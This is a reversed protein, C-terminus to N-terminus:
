SPQKTKCWPFIYPKLYWHSRCTFLWSPFFNTSSSMHQGHLLVSLVRKWHTWTARALRETFSGDLRYKIWAYKSFRRPYSLSAWLLWSVQSPNPSSWVCSLLIGFPLHTASSLVLKIGAWTTKSFWSQYSLNSGITATLGNCNDRFICQSIKRCSWGRRGPTAKDNFNMRDLVARAKVAAEASLSGFTAM